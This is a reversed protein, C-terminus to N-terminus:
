MKTVAKVALLCAVEIESYAMASLRNDKKHKDILDILQASLKKIEEVAEPPNPNHTNFIREQGLTQQSEQFGDM